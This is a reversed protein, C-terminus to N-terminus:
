DGGTGSTPAVWVTNGFPTTRTYGCRDLFIEIEAFSKGRSALAAEHAELALAGIRHNEFLSSSGLIAEHEAGEIDMKMLDVYGIGERALLASLLITEVKQTPVPYKTQRYFSSSGSNVDPALWLATVGRRDSVAAHAISVNAIGNLRLNERIVPILRDQPEVALVTGGPGTLRAAQVTFYGENAGLDVFCGGPALFQALTMQMAPEFCGNRQIACALDSVPDLWYAGTSTQVVVRKVRLLRKAAVALFAPRLDRLRQALAPTV